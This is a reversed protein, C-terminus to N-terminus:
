RSVSVETAGILMGKSHAGKEHTSDDLAESMINCQFTFVVIRAGPQSIEERLTGPGTDKL